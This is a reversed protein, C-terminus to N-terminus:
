GEAYNVQSTRWDGNWVLELTHFVTEAEDDGKLGVRFHYRSGVMFQNRLDLPFQEPPDGFTAPVIRNSQHIRLVQLFRPIDKALDVSGEEPMGVWFLKAPSLRPFEQIQLWGECRNLRRTGTNRVEFRLCRSQTGDAFGAVADCSIIVPDYTVKLQPRLKNEAAVSRRWFLLLSVILAFYAMSGYIIAQYKTDANAAWWAFPVSFTGSMLPGWTAVLDRVFQWSSKFRQM